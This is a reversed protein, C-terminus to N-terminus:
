NWKDDLKEIIRTWREWDELTDLDYKIEEIELIMIPINDNEGNEILKTASTGGFLKKEILNNPVVAIATGGDKTPIIINPHMKLLHKIKYLHVIDLGPLDPMILAIQKTKLHQSADKIAQNLSLGQDIITDFGKQKLFDSLVQDATLIIPKWDFQSVIQITKLLLKNVANSVKTNELSQRLTTMATDIGRVPIIVYEPFNDSMVM